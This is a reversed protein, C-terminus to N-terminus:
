GFVQMESLGVNSGSGGTVQFRVWTVTKPAFSVVKADGDDRMGTVQVSSGDSFSLVGGNVDDFPNNRDFLVVQSITRPSTWRLEVWPNQQGLSAWEGYEWEHTVDDRVMCERHRRAELPM